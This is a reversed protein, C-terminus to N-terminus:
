ALRHKLWTYGARAESQYGARASEPGYVAKHLRFLTWLAALGTVLDGPASRWERMDMLSNEAQQPTHGASILWPTFMVADFWTAGQCAFGWDLVFVSRGVMRFAGMHMEYHLLTDGELGAVDLGDLAARYMARDGRPLANDDDLMAYAKALMRTIYSSLPPVGPPCPTLLDGLRAVTALVESVDPSGPSLVAPSGDLYTHALAIWGHDASSWPMRPAPVVIPLIRGAQREREYLWAAPHDAPCAKLWTGAGSEHLLRATVCRAPGIARSEAKVVAGLYTEMDARLPQPLNEWRMRM